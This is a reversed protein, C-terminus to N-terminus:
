MRRRGVRWEDDWVVTWDHVDDQDPGLNGVVGTRDDSEAGVGTGSEVEDLGEPECEVVGEQFSGPEVIVFMCGHDYVSREALSSGREGAPPPAEGRPGRGALGVRRDVAGVDECEAGLSGSEIAIREIM